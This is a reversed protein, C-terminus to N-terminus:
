QGAEEPATKRTAQPTRLGMRRLAIREAIRMLKNGFFERSTYPRVLITTLGVWNGGLVDTFLQDGVAAVREAPLALRRLARRYGWPWPKSAWAIAPLGLREGVERVRRPARSNSLIILRVGAARMEELWRRVEPGVDRERWSTLTNDLDVILGELGRERLWRPTIELVSDLYYDPRLVSM